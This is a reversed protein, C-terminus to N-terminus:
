NDEVEAGSTMSRLEPHGQDQDWIDKVESWIDEAEVKATRLRV